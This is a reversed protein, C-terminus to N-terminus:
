AHLYSALGPAGGDRGFGSEKFGGFPASPDFRAFANCWVVGARLREATHLALAGSSTWVAAALGYPADNVREIAEGPTRFSLVSLVPGAIEERAAGHSPQVDALMSAPFWFGREPPTWAAQVLTAGEEVGARVFEAIRERQARSRVAGVDTNKDLPDGHRLSGLRARLRAVVEELVNEQVFLRCGTGAPQGGSSFAAAVVSEIAQDFPADDYVVFASKGGLQLSLRKATGATARRIAKGTEVSGSFSVGDVDGHEVLAAGTRADGTVVNVVGPPLDAEACVDALLLASLSTSEAPKLVVTNGCALAPALKWAASLLPFNWSVIAGCVGLPRAREGGNTAWTLKDAWGAHYFFHAGASPVDFDRTQRIPKGTELTEALAFERSRETLARAIRYVYKARESQRMKRWYKEFGRRAARVARDVDAEDAHAILALTEETAPNTTALTTGDAPAVWEGGVFLGYRERLPLAAPSELAPAYAFDVPELASM